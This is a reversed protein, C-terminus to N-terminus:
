YSHDLAGSEYTMDVFGEGEDPMVGDNLTITYNNYKTILRGSSKCRKFKFCDTTVHLYKKVEDIKEFNRDIYSYAEAKYVNFYM